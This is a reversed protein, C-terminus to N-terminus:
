RGARVFMIEIVDRFQGPRFDAPLLSRDVRDLIRDLQRKQMRMQELFKVM